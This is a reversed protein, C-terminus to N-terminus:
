AGCLGVLLVYLFRVVNFILIQAGFSPVLILIVVKGSEKGNPGNSITSPCANLCTTNGCLDKNNIFRDMPAELFPKGSPLPGELQNYSIDINTLGSM